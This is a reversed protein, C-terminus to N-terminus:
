RIELTRHFQIANEQKIPYNEIETTCPETVALLETRIRGVVASLRRQRASFGCLLTESQDAPIRQRRVSFVCWFLGGAESYM